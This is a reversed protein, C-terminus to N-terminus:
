ARIRLSVGKRNTHGESDAVTVEFTYAGAQLGRLDLETAYSFAPSGSLSSREVPVLTLPVQRTVQGTANRITAMASTRGSGRSTYVEGYLGVTDTAEFTRATSVPKALHQTIFAPANGTVLVHESMPALEVDSLSLADSLAPVDVNVSVSGTMDSGVLRVIAKVTSLGPPLHIAAIVSVNADSAPPISSVGRAEQVIQDRADAGAIVYEFPVAPWGISPRTWSSRSSSSTATRATASADPTFVFQCSRTRPRRASSTRPPCTRQYTSRARRAPPRM